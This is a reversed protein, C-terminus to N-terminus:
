RRRKKPPSPNMGKLVGDSFVKLLDAQGAFTIVMGLPLQTGAYETTFTCVRDTGDPSTVDHTLILGTHTTTTAV